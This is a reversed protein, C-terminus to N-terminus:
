GPAAPTLVTLGAADHAQWREAVDTAAAQRRWRTVVRRADRGLARRLAPSADTALAGSACARWAEAPAHDALLAHLRRPGMLDLGALAAVWAEAPLGGADTPGTPGTALGDPGATHAPANPFPSPM